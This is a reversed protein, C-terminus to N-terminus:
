EEGKEAEGTAEEAETSEEEEKAARPLHIAVISPNNDHMIDIFEVGKPAKLDALHIAEDLALKSIDINIFEPLDAPMCRVDVSTMQHSVIGGAKVGPAVEEGQIHLPVHMTIKDTASIRLFDLHQIKPKAPHRQIDKLVVQEAKGDIKLTLIHSYFAENELAHKIENHAVNIAVPDKKAGYVIGPVVDQNRRLRRSAGKGVDARATANLEFQNSM